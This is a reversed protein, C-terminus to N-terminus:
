GSLIGEAMRPDPFVLVYHGAPTKLAYHTVSIGQSFRDEVVLQFFGEMTTTQPATVGVYIAVPSSVSTQGGDTAHATLAYMGAPVNSWSVTYAQSDFTSPQASVGVAVGN